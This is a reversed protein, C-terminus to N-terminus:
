PWCSRQLSGDGNLLRPGVAGVRPHSRLYDILARVAGPKVFADSNLLLLFEGRAQAMALNNAAGFGANRPNTVLRVQPFAARIAAASGDASANDVVWVEAPTGTLDDDLARLCELTLSKTNYSVVIASVTVTATPALEQAENTADNM